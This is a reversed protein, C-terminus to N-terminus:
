PEGLAKRLGELVEDTVVGTQFTELVGQILQRSVTVEDAPDILKGGDHIKLPYAAFRGFCKFDPFVAKPLLPVDGWQLLRSNGNYNTVIQCIFAPKGAEPRVRMAHRIMRNHNAGWQSAM